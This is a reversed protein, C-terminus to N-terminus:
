QLVVKFTANGKDSRIEIFYAGRSWQSVDLHRQQSSVSAELEEEVINQGIANVVTLHATTADLIQYDITLDTTAPSPYVNIYVNSLEQNLLVEAINSYKFTADNDLWKIRYYVKDVGLSAVAADTHRYETSTLAYGVADKNGLAEPFAIGDLSRQIEFYDSNIERNTTWTLMGDNNVLEATLVITEDISQGPLLYGADINSRVEGAILQIMIETTGAIRGNETKTFVDSDIADDSGANYGTFARLPLQEFVVQYSKSSEAAFSYEGNADTTTQAVVVGTNDKLTVRVGSLGLEDVDRLANTNNDAFARGKILSAILLGADPGDKHEGDTLSVVGGIGTNEDADSDIADNANGNVNAQTFVAGLPITTFAVQYTGTALNEFYYMGNADTVATAIPEQVTNFLTVTVGPIAHEAVDQLGDKNEDTWVFGSVAGTPQLWIGADLNYAIDGGFLGVVESMGTNVDVDSDQLDNLNGNADQTAFTAGNPLNSFRVKYQGPMINVFQYYGEADTIATSLLENQASLLGVTVGGLGRETADQMGNRDADVWVWNGIAVRTTQVGADIDSKNQGAVLYFVDTLGTIPNADSNLITSSNVQQTFTFGAPLNAFGVRYSGEAIGVFLYRGQVDTLTTQVAENASNYLVVSIGPVGIESGDRLGNGIKDNWVMDGITATASPNYLGADVSLNNEGEGLSVIGTQGTPLVDSDKSDDSGQDAASFSYGAPLNAFSVIYDDSILGNFVYNGRADTTTTYLLTGAENTLTVTINGMGPEGIEQIGNNNLDNWVRDGLVTSTQRVDSPIVGADITSDQKGATLVITGTIGTGQSADSNAAAAGVGPLTFKKAIPLNLFKVKYSGAALSVFNYAGNADTTTTAIIANANNVLCVTVGPVGPETTQQIGDANLDNWVKNGISASGAPATNFIAGDANTVRSGAVLTILATNGANDVDSDFDDNGANIPSYSWNAPKGVNIIYNGPAVNTFLYQGFVDTTTSALLVASADLLCVTIGPVGPENANKIGNQNVDNWVMDGISATQADALVLGADADLNDTAVGLTINPTFGTTTSPDSDNTSTSGAASTTTFAYGMPLTFRVKYTGAALNTFAYEGNSNSVTTRLLSTNGDYLSVTVNSIGTENADQIGNANADNWVFNGINATTPQIFYFGADFGSLSDGTNINFPITRGTNVNADSDIDDAGANAPSFAYNAPQTFGITYNSGPTVNQFKYIGFADTSTSAIPTNVNDFLTVTVGSIGVEGGDQLGNQNVDDFVFDGVEKACVNKCYVYRIRLVVEGYTLITSAINGSGTVSSFAIGDATYTVNGTGIFPVINAVTFDTYLQNVPVSDAQAFDPGSNLTGDNRALTDVTQTINYNNNLQGSVGPGVVDINGNTNIRIIRPTTGLNEVKYNLDVKVEAQLEVGALNGLTPDFQPLILTEGVIDFSSRNLRVEYVTDKREYCGGQGFQLCVQDFPKYGADITNNFRKIGTSDPSILVVQSIGTFKNADSDSADNGGQNATTLNGVTTSTQFQVYYHGLYLGDFQYYGPNGAGDNATVESGLLVDDSTGAFGDIGADYLQVNVGNLGNAALENQVGDGNADIWVYNGISGAPPLLGADVDRVNTNAPIVVIGTLGTSVVPDSDTLDSGANQTTLVTNSPFNTFGVTYSGPTVNAFYYNGNGDTVATAIPTTGSYLTVLVGAVIPETTAEQGDRDYDLWVTGQLSSQAPTYIGADFTYNIDGAVVTFADTKGTSPNVDSDNADATADKTTFVTGAPITSFGLTYTGPNLNVFYYQGNEGTVTSAVAANSTNYLTVTVGAVGTEGADQIGDRNTDNWVYNGIAARNSNLGADVDDKTGGAFVFVNTTGDPNADTDTASTGNGTPSFDFGAPMNTFGIYYSGNPVGVFTYIGNENTVTSAVPTGTSTYLTVTVGSIGTEGADQVGDANADNWVFDGITGTAAPNYLGADISLDTQGQALGIIATKGTGTNADSDKDDTTANAAVLSYGAPFNSFGVVYQGADLNNFIYNGLGDTTTTTIVTTGNSQYLTVTVGGIGPEGADQAGDNNLDNWVFNGLSAKGGETAGRIIGADIDNNNQGAALTISPTRGAANADSGTANGVTQLTFQYDTPLNSFGVSYTGAALNNFIYFGETTTATTAIATNTADFLTVSVGAVGAEGADQNGNENNDYWVFDGISASGAPTTLYIGADIGTLRDGAVVGFYDTQRTGPFIDSDAEDDTGADVPSVTYTAPLTVKVYYSGPAINNFIYYGFADTATTSVLANAFNFLQVTIGAVGNEGAEQIGNQNLDNWVFDGVSATTSSAARVGADIDTKQENAALVFNATKGTTVSVDSNNQATSGAANQTTFVYGYPLSVGVNYTGAALNTFHYLGSENTITTAVTQGLNNYLTVTVGSMGVETGDQIGNANADNWVYDGISAGSPATYYIGADVTRNDDGLAIIVADSLGTTANVDSDTTDVGVNQTTFIYDTPLTFGVKYDGATTLVFLYNGYADTTTSVVPLYTTGNNKYLTVTVGSVGVETANQVGNKDTDNWVRDGLFAKCPDIVIDLTDNGVCGNADTVNLTIMVNGTSAFTVNHFGIGTATAPTAGNGFNWVYTAGAGVNSSSFILTSNLCITSPLAAIIAPTVPAPQGVTASANATCGNADTVYVTYTGAMLGTATATSQSPTTNWSYSYATTGGTVTATATGNSGGNCTVDTNTASAALVTPETVNGTTTSTCGNADTVTFSYAGANVPFTGTGTYPATGGTATITVTTAGGNCSITGATSSAVLNTPETVTGTTISTCGNADTVTFSYAGANVPFTGTGTYPATGGTATVTVTTTGGNCSITGATSSAVLNTPETVTGTTISTCGNADTVTFSYAGANVPFTGTGTYPATGGTATVTVTTAGGNCSITGATSSAVLNTPETVTGTTISTCGNADTVTFSYAGANVPFTGTGTYPAIGGTATVTVTTTGGNCSITDATSSAVM